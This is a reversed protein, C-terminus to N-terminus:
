ELNDACLIFSISRWGHKWFGPTITGQRYGKIALQKKLLQQAIIGAQPLGYIGKQILVYVYGNTTTLKDLNYLAIIHDPIDLVKLRMYEPRVMPTNLYFDRIDITMFRAGKTSIVSNLLVKTTLM